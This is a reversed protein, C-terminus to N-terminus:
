LVLEFFHAHCEMGETPASHVMDPPLESCKLFLLMQKLVLDREGCAMPHWLDGPTTQVQNANAHLSHTHVFYQPVCDAEAKCRRMFRHAQSYVIGYKCQKALMTDKHPYVVMPLDKYAPVSGTDGFDPHNQPECMPQIDHVLPENAQAKVRWSLPSKTFWPEFWPHGFSFQSM